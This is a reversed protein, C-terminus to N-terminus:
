SLPDCGLTKEFAQVLDDISEASLSYGGTEDALCSAGSLPRNGDLSQLKYGIVHVVTNPRKRAIERGLECPDGACTEEGDTLLVVAGPTEPSGLASAASRVATTLPTRGAPVLRDVQAQIKPGANPTPGFRLEVNQCDNANPGPGYVVLGLNRTSSVRPLFRSLANRVRGIRTEIGGPFDTASMSGSADFVIMADATCPANSERSLAHGAFMATATIAASLIKLM